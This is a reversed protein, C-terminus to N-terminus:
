AHRAAEMRVSVLNLYAGRGLAFGDRRVEDHVWERFNTHLIKHLFDGSHHRSVTGTAQNGLDHFRPPTYTATQPLACLPKSVTVIVIGQYGPEHQQTVVRAVRNDSEHVLIM